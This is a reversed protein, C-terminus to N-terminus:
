HCATKAANQNRKSVFDVSYTASAGRKKSQKFWQIKVLGDTKWFNDVNKVKNVTLAHVNCRCHFHTIFTIGNSCFWKKSNLRAEQEQEFLSSCSVDGM